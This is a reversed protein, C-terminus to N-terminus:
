LEDEQNTRISEMWLNQRGLGQSKSDLAFLKLFLLVKDITQFWIDKTENGLPDPKSLELVKLDIEKTGNPDIFM